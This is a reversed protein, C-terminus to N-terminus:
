AARVLWALAVVGFAGVTQATSAAGPPAPTTPPAVTTTVTPEQTTPTIPEHTSPTVPGQTTSTVPEETTTTVPKQTSTKPAATTTPTTPADTTPALTTTPEPHGKAKYLDKVAFALTKMYDVFESMDPKSCSELASDLCQSLNKAARENEEANLVSYIQTFTAPCKEMTQRDICSNLNKVDKCMTKNLLLSRALTYGKENREFLEQVSDNCKGYFEMCVSYEPLEQESRCVDDLYNKPQPVLIKVGHAQAESWYCTTAKVVDCKDEEEDVCLVSHVGIILVALAAFRWSAM